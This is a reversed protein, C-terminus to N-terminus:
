LSDKRWQINRSGKDPMSQSDACPNIEPSEREKKKGM